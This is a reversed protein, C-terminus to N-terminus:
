EGGAVDEEDGDGDDDGGPDEEGITGVEAAPDDGAADDGEYCGEDVGEPALRFGRLFVPPVAGQFQAAGGGRAGARPPVTPAVALVPIVSRCGRRRVAARATKARVASTWTAHESLSAPEVGVTVEGVRVFVGAVGVGEGVETRESGFKEASRARSCSRTRETSIPGRGAPLSASFRAAPYM